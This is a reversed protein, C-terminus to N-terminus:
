LPEEGILQRDASPYAPPPDYAGSRLAGLVAGAVGGLGIAVAEVAVSVRSPGTSGLASGALIIAALGAPVTALVMAPAVDAGRRRLTRATVACAVLSIIAGAAAGAAAVTWRNPVTGPSVRGLAVAVVLLQVWLLAIVTLLSALAVAGLHRRISHDSRVGTPHRRGRGIM